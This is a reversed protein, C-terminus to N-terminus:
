QIGQADMGGKIFCRAVAARLEARRLRMARWWHAAWRHPRRLESPQGAGFGNRRWCQM